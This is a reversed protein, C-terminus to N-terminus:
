VEVRLGQVKFWSGKFRSGKFRLGEAEAEIEFKLSQVM